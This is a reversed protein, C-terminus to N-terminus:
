IYSCILRILWLIKPQEVSNLKKDKVVFDEQSYSRIQNQIRM